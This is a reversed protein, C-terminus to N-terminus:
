PTPLVFSRSIAVAHIDGGNHRCDATALSKATTKANQENRTSHDNVINCVTVRSGDNFWVRVDFRHKNTNSNSNMTRM